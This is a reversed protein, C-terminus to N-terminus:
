PHPGALVAIVWAPVMLVPLADYALALGAGVEVDAARAMQLRRTVVVAALLACVLWGLAPLFAFNRSGFEDASGSVFQAVAPLAVVAVVALLVVFLGPVAGRSRLLRRDSM